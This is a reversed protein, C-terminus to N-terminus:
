TALPRSVASSRPRSAHGTRGTARWWSGRRITSGALFRTTRIRAPMDGVTRWPPRHKAFQSAQCTSSDTWFPPRWEPTTTTSTDPRGSRLRTCHGATRCRRAGRSVPIAHRGPLVITMSSRLTSNWQFRIMSLPWSPGALNCPCPVATRLSNRFWRGSCGHPRRPPVHSWSERTGVWNAATKRWWLGIM